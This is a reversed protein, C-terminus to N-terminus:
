VGSIGYVCVIMGSLNPHTDNVDNYDLDAEQKALREVDDDLLEQKAKEEIIDCIYLTFIFITTVVKSQNTTVGKLHFLDFICLSVM